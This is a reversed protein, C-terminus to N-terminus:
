ELRTIFDNVLLLMSLSFISFSLHDLSINLRTFTFIRKIIKDIYSEDVSISKNKIYLYVAYLLAIRATYNQIDLHLYSEILISLYLLNHTEMYHSCESFSRWECNTCKDHLIREIIQNAVFLTGSHENVENYIIKKIWSYEKPLDNAEIKYLIPFLVIDGREYLFQAYDLEEKACNSTFFNNSIVMIVYKSNKIGHQFNEEYRSDGLFMDYFDYWVNFGYNKLHFVISEVISYRDANSYGIFIM